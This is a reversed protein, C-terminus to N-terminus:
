PKSGRKLLRSKYLKNITEDDAIKEPESKDVNGPYAGAHCDCWRCLPLTRDGQLLKKRYASLIPGNWIEVLTNDPVKGVPVDAYFDNCCVMAEGRWNINLLRFPKVCMRHIPEKTAERFKPVLGSRNQLGFVGTGFSEVSSKDFVRIAKAKAPIKAYCEDSSFCLRRKVEEAWEVYRPYQKATYANLVIQNIGAAYWEALEDAGKLYDGNSSFMLTASPVNERFLAVAQKLYDKHKLPENYIYFEVRGNYKLASLEGCVAVMINMDMLDDERKFTSVPCFVCGRNCLASIEVSITTFLRM